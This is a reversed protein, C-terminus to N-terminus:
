KPNLIYQINPKTIKSHKPLKDQTWARAFIPSYLTFKFPKMFHRNNTEADQRNTHSARFSKYEVFSRPCNIHQKIGFHSRQHSCPYHMIVNLKRLTWPPKTKCFTPRRSIFDVLSNNMPNWRGVPPRLKDDCLYSLIFSIRHLTTLRSLFPPKNM